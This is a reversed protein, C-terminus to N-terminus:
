LSVNCFNNKITFIDLYLKFDTLRGPALFFDDQPRTTPDSTTRKIKLVRGMMACAVLETKFYTHLFFICITLTM